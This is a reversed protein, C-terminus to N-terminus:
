APEGGLAVATQMVAETQGQARKRSPSLLALLVGLLSLGAGVWLARTFGATFTQPSSYVGHRAFVAVLVAVGFVAALERMTSNTGSAVRAEAMPVSALVANSVTSFCLSIGV